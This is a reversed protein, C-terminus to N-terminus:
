NKGFNKIFDEAKQLLEKANDHTLQELAEEYSLWFFDQHEFSITIDPSETKGVFFVVQKFSPNGKKTYTYHVTSRFGPMFEADTIGTEEELERAATLYEEDEEGEEVHGKPFDFHGGPYHLILYKRGEDTDRFLVVGCSKEDPTRDTEDVQAM